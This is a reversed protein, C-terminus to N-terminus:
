KLVVRRILSIIIRIIALFFYLFLTIVVVYGIQTFMEHWPTKFIIISIINTLFAAAFCASLIYTEKKLRKSPIILDQM